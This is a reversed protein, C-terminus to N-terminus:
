REGRQLITLETMWDHGVRQLGMSQLVGPKRTWWWSRSSAWVWTWQTPSSMWRNWGRDDGEGGAKLREWCWTKELLDTRRMLYGFYQLKLKLRQGKLSYSVYIYLVTKQVRHVRTQAFEPITFSLFARCAATWPIMFLPCLLAVSCCFPKGYSKELSCIDELKRTAIVMHLSKPAWSSLIQWQKWTERM